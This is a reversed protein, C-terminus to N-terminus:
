SRAEPPLTRRDAKDDDFPDNGENQQMRMSVLNSDIAAWMQDLSMGNNRFQLVQENVMKLTPSM